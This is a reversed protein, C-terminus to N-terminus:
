TAERVTFPFQHLEYKRSCCGGEEKKEEKKEGHECKCTVQGAYGKQSTVKRFSTFSFHSLICGNTLSPKHGIDLIWIM